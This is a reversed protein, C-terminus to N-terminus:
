RKYNKVILNEFFFRYLLIQFITVSRATMNESPEFNKSCDQYLALSSVHRVFILASSFTLTRRYLKMHFIAVGMADM